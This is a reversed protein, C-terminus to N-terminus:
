LVAEMCCKTMRSGSWSTIPLIGPGPYFVRIRHRGARFTTDEPLTHQPMRGERGRSLVRTREIAYTPIGRAHLMDLGATRDAHFHTSICAIVKQGHRREITDLLPLMQTTDWPVDIMVVGAGTVIYMSNSPFRSGDDLSGYTTYVYFDEKLKAIDLAKAVKQAFAAAQLALLMLLWASKKITRGM